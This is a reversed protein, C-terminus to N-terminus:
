VSWLASSPNPYIVDFICSYMDSLNHQGDLVSTNRVPGLSMFHKCACFPSFYLADPSSLRRRPTRHYGMVVYGYCPGNNRFPLRRRPYHSRHSYSLRWHEFGFRLLDKTIGHHGGGSNTCRITTSCMEWCRSSSTQSLPRSHSTTLSAMAQRSQMSFSKRLGLVTRTCAGTPHSPGFLASTSHLNRRKRRLHPYSNGFHWSSFNSTQAM